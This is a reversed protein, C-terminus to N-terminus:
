LGQGQVSQQVPHYNDHARDVFGVADLSAPFFNDPYNSYMATTAGGSTPWPGALANNTFIVGPFYKALAPNGVGVGSGFVGYANHPVVNDTFVFGQNAPTSDASIISGGQLGTNHHITVNNVGGLVQFLFRTSTTSCTTPSECAADSAPQHVPTTKASCTSRRQGRLPRHQQHDHRGPRHVVPGHQEPQSAHVAIAFGAQDAPWIREFVNGDILLRQANKLELLNKVSWPMGAYSPDGSKWSLPKSFLNERIEIDSPIM